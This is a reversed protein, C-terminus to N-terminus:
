AQAQALAKAVDGREVAAVFPAPNFHLHFYKIKDTDLKLWAAIPIVPISPVITTYDWFVCVEDGERLVQKIEVKKVLQTFIDAAKMFADADTFSSLPGIFDGTDALLKRIAARDQRALATFYAVPYAILLCAVTAVAVYVVTRVLAPRFFPSSGVIHDWVYNFQTFDWNLPNWVPVPERLIPDTGGFLIAIVVYLPAVFLLALWVTGPLALLPWILRSGPPRRRDDADAV